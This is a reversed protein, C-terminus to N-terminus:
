EKAGSATELHLMRLQMQAAFRMDPDVLDLQGVEAVRRLRYRLTNPHIFLEEAASSIDGMCDLWARLSAVLETGKAEDHKVLRAVPGTLQEGGDTLRDRMELLLAEIQIDEFNVVQPLDPRKERLVRLAREAGYRVEALKSTGASPTAVGILLPARQSLRTLLDEILVRTQQAADGVAPTPILGYITEGLLAACASPHVAALHVSVADAIRQLEAKNRGVSQLDQQEVCIPVAAFVSLATKGLGLRELAFGAGEGGKLAAGLLEVRMSQEMDSSARIHLMHLAVLKAAESLASLQTPSMPEAAAAWISGLVEDGARVAIAQRSVEGVGLSASDITVPGNSSYLERFVGADVLIRLYREAVQRELITEIRSYDAEEQRTSFGLVRSNRDEITVPADILASIANALAFLDGPPIGGILEGDRQASTQTLISSLMAALQSWSAGKTLGLLTIGNKRAVAATPADIVAPERLVLAASRSEGLTTLLARVEPGAALSVGLVMTDQGFTQEDLPDYVIIGRLQRELDPASTLPQLFTSGLDELVKSLTPPTSLPFDASVTELWRASTASKGAM